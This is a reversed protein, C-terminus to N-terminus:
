GKARTYLRRDLINLGYMVGEDPEIAARTRAESVLEDLERATVFNSIATAAAVKTSWYPHFFLRKLLHWDSKDCLSALVCGALRKFPYLNEIKTVPLAEAPRERMYEWFEPSETLKMLWPKLTADVRECMASAITTMNWLGVRNQAAAIIELSFRVDSATGVNLLGLVIGTAPGGLIDRQKRLFHRMKPADHQRAIASIAESVNEGSKGYLQLLREIPFKVRTECLIEIVAGLAPGGMEWLALLLAYQRDHAARLALCFALAYRENTGIKASSLMALLVKLDSKKGCRSMGCVGHIRTLTARNNIEAKYNELRGPDASNIFITCLLAIDGRRLLKQTIDKNQPDIFKALAEGAAACALPAGRSRLSLLSPLDDPKSYRHIYEAMEGQLRYRRFAKALISFSVFREERLLYRCASQAVSDDASEIFRQAWAASVAPDVKQLFYEVPGFGHLSSTFLTELEIPSCRIRTRHFYIGLHEKFTLLEGTTEYASTKASLVDRLLRAEREDPGVLDESIKQSLFDHVIEWQDEVAHIMRLSQLDLLCSDVLQQNLGTQAAIDERSKRQRRRNGTLNVLIIRCETAHDGLRELQDYLYRGIFHKGGGLRVYSEVNPLKGDKESAKLLGEAVMQLFPPYLSAGVSTLSEAAVDEVIKAVLGQFEMESASPFQSYFVMGLATKAGAASLPGLYYRPLGSSSGSIQQWFTGVRPEADGRYCVIVHLNPTPANHVDTLASLLGHTQPSGLAPIIDEFQDIVALVPRDHYASAILQLATGITVEPTPGQMFQNWLAHPVSRDPDDLPRCWGVSWGRARLTPFIGAQILSTKGIGSDGILLSLPHLGALDSVSSMEIERGRFLAADRETYHEMGLAGTRPPSSTAQKGKARFVNATGVGIKRLIDRLVDLPLADPDKFLTVVHKQKLDLKFRGLAAVRDSERDVQDVPWSAKPDLVYVLLGLVNGKELNKSAERYEAETLSIGTAADISGYREAYIGVFLNCRRVRELCFSLPQSEDSGFTEMSVLDAPIVSLLKLVQRRVEKLDEVTSSLFIRLDMRARQPACFEGEGLNALFPRLM